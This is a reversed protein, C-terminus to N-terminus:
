SRGSGTEAADIEARTRDGMAWRNPPVEQVIVRVAELPAGLTEHVARAVQQICNTIMAGDHGEIMTIQVLPM